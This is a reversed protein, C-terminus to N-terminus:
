GYGGVERKTFTEFCMSCRWREDEKRRLRLPVLTADTWTSGHVYILRMDTHPCRYGSM